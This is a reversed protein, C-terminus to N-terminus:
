ATPKRDFGIRSGADTRDRNAPSVGLFGALHRSLDAADDGAGHIFSSKRRRLFTAGMYYLGPADVVVGGDHRIGGKRDLVPLDLWSLDPRYGTAWVVSRIDDRSFSMLLPPSAEVETAPYREPPDVESDLGQQEAWEDVTNLLRNMKLDALECVNRLSGSFMLRDDEIGSLRGRLQIGLGALRNLDLNDRQSSGVLQPSPVNRARVIDDVEDYREDLIGSADMWWQIDRGRYTRPLRVHEGVALTVPRGSRHIEEAIQLGSASAGVVLVGGQDLQDPNRYGLTAISEIRAPLSDAIAPKSPLNCAGSAIVVAKSSWQEDNAQIIYADNRRTVSTVETYQVVPASILEAYREIFAVTEPMTMFGDPDDGDYELGPLRAQWNPTLLRLSDWREHKWSNAIEGREFIVHDISLRSLSRSMALGAHGAGIIACSITKLGRRSAVPNARISFPRAPHAPLVM